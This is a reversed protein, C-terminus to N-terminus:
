QRVRKVHGYQFSGELGELIVWYRSEHVAKIKYSEEYGVVKVLTGVKFSKNFKRM